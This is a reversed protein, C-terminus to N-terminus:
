RAAWKRVAAEVLAISIATWLVGGVVDLLYHWGIPITSVVVLINLVSFLVWLGRADRWARMLLLAFVTHFSPFNLFGYAQDFVSMQGERLLRLEALYPPFAPPDVYQGQYWAYPGEAPGAWLFFVSVVGAFSLVAVYQWLRFLDRRVFVYYLVMLRIQLEVSEYIWAFAPLLGADKFWRYTVPHPLSLWEDVRALPADVLPGSLPLVLYGAVTIVAPLWFYFMALMCVDPLAQLVTHAWGVLRGLMRKRLEFALGTALAAAMVVTAYGRFVEHESVPLVTSPLLVLLLATCALMSALTVRKYVAIADDRKLM